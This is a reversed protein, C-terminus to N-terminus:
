AELRALMDRIIDEWEGKEHSGLISEGLVNGESDVFYTTPFGLINKLVDSRLVNDPLLVPYEVGTKECINKALEVKEPDPTDTGDLVGDQVIGIIQVGEGAMEKAIEALDPMEQICPSCWTTWINIMTLKADKFIDPTVEGGDLTTATFGGISTVDEIVPTTIGMYKEDMKQPEKVRISSVMEQLLATLEPNEANDHLSYYLIYEGFAGLETNQAYGTLTSLDGGALADRHIIGIRALKELNEAMWAMFDDYELYNDASPLKDKGDEPVRLFDVYASIIHANDFDVQWDSNRMGSGDDPFAYDVEENSFMFVTNDFIKELLAEPISYSIGMYPYENEAEPRMNRPAPRSAMMIEGDRGEAPATDPTDGAYAITSGLALTCLLILAIISKITKNM